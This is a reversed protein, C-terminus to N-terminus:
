AVLLTLLLWIVFPAALWDLPVTEARAVLEVATQHNAIAARWTSSRQCYRDLTGGLVMTEFLPGQTTPMGLFVTSIQVGLVRDKAVVQIEPHSLIWGLFVRFAVPVPTKNQLVFYPWKVSRSKSTQENDWPKLTQEEDWTKSTQEERDSTITVPYVGYGLQLLDSALQTAEEILSCNDLAIEVTEATSVVKAGPYQRRVIALVEDNMSSSLKLGTPQIQIQVPTM